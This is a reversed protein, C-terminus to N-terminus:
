RTRAAATVSDNVLPVGSSTMSTVSRERPVLWRLRQRSRQHKPNAPSSRWTTIWFSSRCTNKPQQLILLLSGAATSCRLPKLTQSEVSFDEAVTMFRGDIHRQADNRESIRDLLDNLEAMSSIKPVPVLARRRFGGVEGEVGGKEHAGEIGPLCFFSDFGYHSRLLMFRESEDRDRGRTVKSVAPKLNDYPIRAPVGGFAEFARVYGDLFVEQAENLYARCFAKGSASLRMVFLRGEVVVENLVFVIAGFHVEAEVGFPHEQPVTVEVSAYGLWHKAHRIYERM